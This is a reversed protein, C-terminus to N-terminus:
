SETDHKDVICRDTWRCRYSSSIEGQTTHEPRGNGGPCLEVLYGDMRDHRQLPIFGIGLRPGSSM